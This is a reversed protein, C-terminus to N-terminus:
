PPFPPHNLLFLILPHILSAPLCSLGVVRISTRELGGGPYQVMKKPIRTAWNLAELPHASRVAQSPRRECRSAGQRQAQPTAVTWAWAARAAVDNGCTSSTKCHPMPRGARDAAAGGQVHADSGQMADNTHCRSSL